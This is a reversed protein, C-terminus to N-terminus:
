LGLGRAGRRPSKKRGSKAISYIWVTNPNRRSWAELVLSNGTTRRRRPVSETAGAGRTGNCRGSSRSTRSQTLREGRGSQVRRSAVLGRSVALTHVDAAYGARCGLRVRQAQGYKFFSPRRRCIDAPHPVACPYGGGPLLIGNTQPRELGAMQAQPLHCEQVCGPRTRTLLSKPAAAQPM